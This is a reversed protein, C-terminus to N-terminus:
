YPHRMERQDWAMLRKEMKKSHVDAYYSSGWLSKAPPQSVRLVLTSIDPEAEPVRADVVRQTALEVCEALKDNAGDHNATAMATQRVLEVTGNHERILVKNVVVRGVISSTLPLLM